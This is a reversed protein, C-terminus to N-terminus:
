YDVKSLLLMGSFSLQKHFKDTGSAPGLEIYSNLYSCLVVCYM